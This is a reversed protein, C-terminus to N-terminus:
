IDNPIVETAKAKKREAVMLFMSFKLAQVYTRAERRAADTGAQSELTNCMVILHRLAKRYRNLM